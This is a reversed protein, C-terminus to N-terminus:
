ELLQISGQSGSLLWREGIVDAAVLQYSRSLRVSILHTLRLTPSLDRTMIWWFSRTHSKDVECSVYILVMVLGDLIFSFLNEQEGCVVVL